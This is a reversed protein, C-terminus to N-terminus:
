ERVIKRERGGEWDRTRERVRIRGCERVIKRTREIERDRM